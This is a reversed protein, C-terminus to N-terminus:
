RIWHDVNALVMIVVLLIGAAAWRAVNWMLRWDLDTGADQQRGAHSGTRVGPRQVLVARPGRGLQVPQGPPAAIHPDNPKLFGRHRGDEHVFGACPVPIRHRGPCQRIPQRCTRCTSRAAPPAPAAPGDLGGSTAGHAAAMDGLSLGADGDTGAASVPIWDAGARDSPVPRPDSSPTKGTLM